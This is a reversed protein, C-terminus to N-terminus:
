EVIILVHLMGPKCCFPAVSHAGKQQLGLNAIPFGSTAPAKIIQAKALPWRHIIIRTSRWRSTTETLCILDKRHSTHMALSMALFARLLASIIEVTLAAATSSIGPGPAIIWGPWGSMEQVKVLPWPLSVISWVTPHTRYMWVLPSPVGEMPRVPLIFANLLSTPAILVVTGCCTSPTTAALVLLMRRVSTLIVAPIAPLHLVASGSCLALGTCAM